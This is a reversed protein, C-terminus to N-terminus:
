IGQTSLNTIPLHKWGNGVVSLAFVTAALAAGVVGAKAGVSYGMQKSREEPFPWEHPATARPFQDNLCVGDVILESYSNVFIPLPLLPIVRTMMFKPFWTEWAVMHMADQCKSVMFELRPVRLEELAVLATSLKKLPWSAATRRDPGLHEHLVNALAAASEMCSNAGQGVLPNFLHAADGLIVIRGYHWRKLVYNPLATAGQNEMTKVLDSMHTGTASVIADGCSSLERQIDEKSPRPIQDLSISRMSSPLTWFWFWFISNDPNCMLGAAKGPMASGIVDGAAIGKVPAATAFLCMHECPKNERDQEPIWGPKQEDANRWMERRVTSRSGDAGVVIQGEFTTGDETHVFVSDETTEVQKVKQNCVVRKKDVIADYMIGLLASRPLFMNIYGHRKVMLSKLIRRMMLGGSTGDIYNMSETTQGSAAVKHYIGLQDLIRLGNAYLGIGSGVAPVVSGYAELLVWDIGLHQLTLALTLGTVGGGVIIVQKKKHGTAM